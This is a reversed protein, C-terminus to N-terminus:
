EYIHNRCRLERHKSLSMLSLNSDFSKKEKKKELSPCEGRIRKRIIFPTPFRYYQFLDRPLSWTRSVGLGQGKVSYSQEPDLGFSPDSEGIAVGISWRHKLNPDVLMSRALDRLWWDSFIEKSFAMIGDYGQTVGHSDKTKGFSKTVDFFTDAFVGANRDSPDVVIPGDDQGKRHTFMCYNLTGSTAKLGSEADVKGPTTSLSWQKPQFYVPTHDTSAEYDIDRIDPLKQSISYGLVFPNDVTPAGKIKQNEQLLSFYTSISQSFSNVMDQADLGLAVGDPGRVKFSNSIRTAQFLCFISSVTFIKSDIKALQKAARDPM